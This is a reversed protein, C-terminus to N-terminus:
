QTSYTKLFVAIKIMILDTSDSNLFIVKRLSQM